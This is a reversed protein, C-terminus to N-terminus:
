NKEAKDINKNQKKKIQQKTIYYASISAIWYTIIGPIIALFNKIGVAMIIMLGISIINIIKANQKLDKIEINTKPKFIMKFIMSLISIIGINILISIIPIIIIGAIIFINGILSIGAIISDKFNLQKAIEIVLEGTGLSIVSLYINILFFLVMQLDIKKKMKGDREINRRSM